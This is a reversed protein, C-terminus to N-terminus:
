KGIFKLVINKTEEIDNIYNSYKVRLLDVGIQACEANKRNDRDQGEPTNHFYDGDFEIAKKLSPIYIDLEFKKNPLLGFVNHEANPYFQKVFEYIFVEGKSVKKSCPPCWQGDRVNLPRMLFINGCKCQWSIKTSIDIYPGLFKGNNRSAYVHMLEESSNVNYQNLTIQTKYNDDGKPMNARYEMVKDSSNIAIQRNKLYEAKDSESITNWWEKSRTRAAEVLQSNNAYTMVLTATKREYSEPTRSDRMEVMADPNKEIKANYANAQRQEMPLHINPNTSIIRKVKARNVGTASVIELITMNPNNIRLNIVKQEDEVSYKKAQNSRQEHTLVHNNKALIYRVTSDKLELEEAIESMEYPFNLSRLSIVKEEQEKTYAPLVPDGSLKGAKILWPKITQYKLGFTNAVDILQMGPQFYDIVAQVIKKDYAM